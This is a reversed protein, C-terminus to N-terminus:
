YTSRVKRVIEREFQLIAKGVVCSNRVICVVDRASLAHCESSPRGQDPLFNRAHRECPISRPAVHRYIATVNETWVSRFRRCAAALAFIDSFSPLLCFIRIILEAPISSLPGNGNDVPQMSPPQTTAAHEPLKCQYSKQDIYCPELESSAPGHVHQQASIMSISGSPSLQVVLEPSWLGWNISQSSSAARYAGGYQAAPLPRLPVRDVLQQYM